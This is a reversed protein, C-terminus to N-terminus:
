RSKEQAGGVKGAPDVYDMKRIKERLKANDNDTGLAKTWADVAKAKEGCAAYVDGLHDFIVPDKLLAVAKGITEQAQTYRGQKYQVWGLSDLYAPSDPKQALAALIYEEAKQLAVGKEAFVYGLSNLADSHAPNIKLLREWTEIAKDRKGTEDYLYGLWFLADQDQPQRAVLDEYIGRAEDFKKEHFRIQALSEAIKANGKDQVYLKETMEAYLANAKESEGKASYMLILLLYADTNAADAGSMSALVEKAKTDDGSKIYSVALKLDVTASSAARGAKAFEKAAKDQDDYREAMLGKLYAAYVKANDAAFLRPTWVLFLTLLITQAIMASTRM